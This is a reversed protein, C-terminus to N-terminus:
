SAEAASAPFSSVEGVLSDMAASAAAVVATNPATKTAERELASIQGDVFQMTDADVPAAPDELLPSLQTKLARYRELLAVAPNEAPTAEPEAATGATPGSLVQKELESIQNTQYTLQNTAAPDAGSSQIRQEISGKVVKAQELRRRVDLTDLPDDGGSSLRDEGEPADPAYAAADGGFSIWLALQNFFAEPVAADGSIAQREGTWGLRSPATDDPKESVWWLDGGRQSQMWLDLGPSEFEYGVAVIGLGNGRGQRGLALTLTTPAFSATGHCRLIHIRVSSSSKSPAVPATLDISEFHHGPRLGADVLSRELLDDYSTTIVNPFAGSRVLGSVDYYFSPAPINWMLREILRRNAPDVPDGYQKSLEELSPVKAAKAVGVGLILIYPPASEPRGNIRDALDRIGQQLQM